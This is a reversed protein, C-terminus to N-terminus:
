ANYERAHYYTLSVLDEIAKHGRQKSVDLPTLKDNDQVQLDVGARLLLKAPETKGYM